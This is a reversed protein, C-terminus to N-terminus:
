QKLNGQKSYLEYVIKYRKKTVHNRESKKKTAAFRGSHLVSTSQLCTEDFNELCIQWLLRHLITINIGGLAQTDYRLSYVFIM